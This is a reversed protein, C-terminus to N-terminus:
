ARPEGLAGLTLRTDSRRRVGSDAQVHAEIERCVRAVTEIGADRMPVRARAAAGASM